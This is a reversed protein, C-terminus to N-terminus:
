VEGLGNLLLWPITHSVLIPRHRLSTFFFIVLDDCVVGLGNLYVRLTKSNGVGLTGKDVVDHFFIVLCPLIDM